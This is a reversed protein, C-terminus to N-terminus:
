ELYHTDNISMVTFKDNKYVIKTVSANALHEPIEKDTMGTLLSIIAMGHSVVLVNGGGNNEVETTTKKLTQQMRSQLQDFSEAYGTKDLTQMTDTRVKLNYIDSQKFEDLNNFGLSNSVDQMMVSYKEGEYTRFNVERFGEYFNLSLDSQNMEKLIIETTQRARGLDSSYAYDFSVGEKLLVKGLKETISIGESMLPSDVWGQVRNAENLLTKGHRVIYFTTEKAVKKTNDTDITNKPSCSTFLLLPLLLYLIKEYNGGCQKIMM